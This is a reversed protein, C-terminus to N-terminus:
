PTKTPTPSPSTSTSLKKVERSVFYDWAKCIVPKIIPYAEGLYALAQFLSM